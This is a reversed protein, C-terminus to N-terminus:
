KAATKDVKVRPTIRNENSSEMENKRSNRDLM